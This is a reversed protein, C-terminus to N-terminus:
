GFFFKAVFNKSNTAKVYDHITSQVHICFFTNRRRKKTRHFLEPSVIEGRENGPIVSTMM